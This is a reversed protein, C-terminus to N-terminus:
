IRAMTDYERKKIKLQQWREFSYAIASQPASEQRVGSSNHRATFKAILVSVAIAMYNKNAGTKRNELTNLLRQM